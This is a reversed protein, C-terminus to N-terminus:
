KLLVMKRALSTTGASLRYLYIGSAVPSGTFDTADWQVTYTGASLNAEILRAVEAGLINYVVLQVESRQPLSFQINTAPNFPNPYNHSLSYGSPVTPDYDYDVGSPDEWGSYVYVVYEVSGLCSSFAFDDIGDGNFDGIGSCDLGYWNHYTPTDRVDFYVDPISDMEPGGLYIAVHGISSWSTPYSVILDAIGDHNVDGAARAHSDRTATIVDPVDDIDPGGFYVFGLSDDAAVGASAYLDDYSDGNVDGLEEVIMSFNNRGEEFNGMRNIQMDYTADFDPGGWYMYVCGNTSNSPVTRWSIAVDRYGDGNFDGPAIGDGFSYSSVSMNPSVIELDPVSDAAAGLEFLLVSKQNIVEWTLLEDTGNLNIDDGRVTYGHANLTDTGFWLDRTTDLEPGGYYLGLRWNKDSRGPMTFDIFGDGNVDGITDIRGNTSDFIMDPTADFSEGGYFLFARFYEWVIIDDYGDDNQDGVPLIYTGFLTNTTDSELVGLLEPQQAQV